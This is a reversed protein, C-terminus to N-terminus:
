IEWLTDFNMIPREFRVGLQTFEGALAQMPALTEMQKADALTEWVSVNIMTNSTPDIGAYFLLLGNLRKISPVLVEQSADLKAKVKEYNEPEFSGRSIRVVSM